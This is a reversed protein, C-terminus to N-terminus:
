LQKEFCVSLPDGIYDGYPEIRHFGSQEYFAIAEPQLLGTELRIITFDLKAAIAELEALIKRALGQRRFAPSVFMRKIEAIHPDLPRIAACAVTEDDVWAVMVVSNETEIPDYPHQSAPPYLATSAEDAAALLARAKPHHPSIQEIVADIM